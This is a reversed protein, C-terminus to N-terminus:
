KVAEDNSKCPETKVTVSGILMQKRTLHKGVIYTVLFVAMLVEWVRLLFVFHYPYAFFGLLFVLVTSLIAYEILQLTVTLILRPLSRISFKSSNEIRCLQSTVYVIGGFFIGFICTYGYIQSMSIHDAASVLRWGSLAFLAMWILLLISSLESIKILAAGIPWRPEVTKDKKM